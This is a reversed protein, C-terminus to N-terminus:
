RSAPPRGFHPARLPRAVGLWVGGVLLGLGSGAAVDFPYHVGVYVRSYSIGAALALLAPSFAPYAWALTIMAAASSAAHASPWSHAGPPDVLLDPAPVLKRFPRERRFIPKLVINVIGQATLTAGVTLIASRRGKKGGFLFLSACITMWVTSKTGIRSAQVMVPDLSDLRLRRHLLFYLWRDVRYFDRREM